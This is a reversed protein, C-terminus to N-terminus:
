ANGALRRRGEAVALERLRPAAMAQKLTEAITRAQIDQPPQAPRQVGLLAAHARKIPSNAAAQKRQEQEVLYLRHGMDLLDGAEEPTAPHYNAAALKNFFVEAYVENFLAARPDTTANDQSM